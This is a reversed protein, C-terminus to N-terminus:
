YIKITRYIVCFTHFVCHTPWRGGTVVVTRILKVGFNACTIVDAMERSVCFKALIPKRPAERCIRSIYRNQSIKREKEEREKGKREEGERKIRTM